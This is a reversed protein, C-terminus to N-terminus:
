AAEQGIQPSPHISWQIHWHIWSKPLQHPIAPAIFTWTHGLLKHVDCADSMYISKGSSKPSSTGPLCIVLNPRPVSCM